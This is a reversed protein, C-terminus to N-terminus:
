IVFSIVTKQILSTQLSYMQCSINLICCCVFVWSSGILFQVTSRFLYKESSFMCYVDPTHLINLILLWPSACWLWLSVGDGSSSEVTLSLDTSTLVHMGDQWLCSPLMVCVLAIQFSSVAISFVGGYSEAAPRKKLQHGIPSPWAWQTHHWGQGTARPEILYCSLYCNEYGLVGVSHEWSVTLVM